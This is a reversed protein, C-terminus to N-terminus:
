AAPRPRGPTVGTRSRRARVNAGCLRCSSDSSPRPSNQNSPKGSFHTPPVPEGANILDFDRVTAVIERRLPHRDLADGGAVRVGEPFYNVLAKHRCVAGRAYQDIDGLHKM